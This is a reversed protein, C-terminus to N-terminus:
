VLLSRPLTMLLPVTVAAQTFTSLSMRKTELQASHLSPSPAEQPYCETLSEDRHGNLVKHLVGSKSTYAPKRHKHTELLLDMHMRM